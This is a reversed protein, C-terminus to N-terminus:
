EANEMDDNDNNEGGANETETDNEMTPILTLDPEKIKWSLNLGYHKNFKELYENRADLWNARKIAIDRM